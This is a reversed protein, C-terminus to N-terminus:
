RSMAPFKKECIHRGVTAVGAGPATGLGSSRTIQVLCGGIGGCNMASPESLTVMLPWGATRLPSRLVQSAVTTDAPNIEGLTVMPPPETTTRSIRLPLVGPTPRATVASSISLPLM